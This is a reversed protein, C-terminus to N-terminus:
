DSQGSKRTSYWFFNLIENTIQYDDTESITTIIEKKKKDISNNIETIKYNIKEIDENIIKIDDNIQQIAYKPSSTWM